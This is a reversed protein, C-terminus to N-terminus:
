EIDWVLHRWATPRCPAQINSNVPREQFAVTQNEQIRTSFRPYPGHAYRTNWHEAWWSNPPPYSGCTCFSPTGYSSRTTCLPLLLDRYSDDSVLLAFAGTLLRIMTAMQCPHSCQGRYLTSFESCLSFSCQSGVPMRCLMSCYATGTRTVHQM